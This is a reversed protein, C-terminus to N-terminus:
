WTTPRPHQRCEWGACRTSSAPAPALVPMSTCRRRTAWSPCSSARACCRVLALASLNSRVSTDDRIQGIHRAVLRLLEDRTAAPLPVTAGFAAPVYRTLYTDLDLSRAGLHNVVLSRFDAAVSTDLVQALSLPDEFDGPVALGDLPRLEGSSPWLALQRLRERLQPQSQLELHRDDIWTLLTRLWAPNARHCAQIREPGAQGLVHVLGALDFRDVLKLLELPNTDAAWM